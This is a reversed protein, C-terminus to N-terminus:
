DLLSEPSATGPPIPRVTFSFRRSEIPLTYQPHTRAGWSNDGGVGMQRDDINLTISEGTKLENIHTAAELAEMSYPWASFDFRPDGAVLLGVGDEGTLAAWRTDCRNGNEQPRVYAHVLQDVTSTYRSVAAGTRRDWYTEHPGRGFWAVNKWDPFLACQMGFRPLIPWPNGEAGGLHCTVTLAGDPTITYDLAFDARVDELRFKAHLDAREAVTEMTFEVPRLDRSYKKWVALRKPMGNGRDNDIPVRWFNPRLPAALLERGGVMWSELLGTEKGFHFAFGEGSVNFGDGEVTGKAAPVALKVKESPLEFQEWAIVHGSPAWSADSRLSAKVTLFLVKGPAAKAIDMPLRIETPGGPDASVGELIGSALVEGDAEIKWDFAFASLNLFSHKNTLTVKGAAPDALVFGVNQYVKKVEFLSPNPTRDPRVLGNCCFNGSNPKDGYDGGYTWYETGNKDQELFGQDVWDWICGGQLSRNSEIAAWYEQLNGVSNGMAHAYECMILPRSPNTKAYATIMEITPYMAVVLDSYRENEGLPYDAGRNDHAASWKLLRDIFANNTAECYQVPRTADLQKALDYEAALNRGIGSENGLSWICVSPHNKDREVLARMREVHAAKWEPGDSIPQLNSQGFGHSEVNAEDIVYLGYRDCLEYWRPDNPYHSTRVTNINNRKMLAIDQVMSLFSVTHGTVPDHEHRNVGKLYVYRGNVLLVGDKVEVSRFGVDCPISEIVAGDAKSLTLVLRYLAPSEASWKAPDPIQASLTLKGEGGAAIESSIGPIEVLSRGEPDVLRAGLGIGAAVEGANGVAVMVKLEANKYDADLLTEVKFDRIAVTPMAELFVDRFIGSLRWFDQDELYSGDCWRFVQAALLNEGAVLYSGIDFVAPTRSDQSYGVERGNIWLVLASDVGDFHLLVQRDKWEPPVSFRTRYSGVENGNPGEIRPAKAKDFPYGQNTYIPQGYGQRQWNSPVDIEKWASDDFDTAAFGEARREPIPSFHFKWRGNLSQISPSTERTGLRARDADPFRFFTAVTSLKHHGIIEPNEWDNSLAASCLFLLVLGASAFIPIKMAPVCYSRHGM